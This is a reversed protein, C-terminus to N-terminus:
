ATCDYAPTLVVYRSMTDIVSIIYINGDDEAPLPGVIDVALVSM